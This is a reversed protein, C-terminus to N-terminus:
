DDLLGELSSDLQPSIAQEDKKEVFEVEIINGSQDFTLEARHQDVSYLFIRFSYFDEAEIFTGQKQILAAKEQLNLQSSLRIM